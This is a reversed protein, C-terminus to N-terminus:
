HTSRRQSDTPTGSGLTGRRRVLEYCVGGLSLLFLLLASRALSYKQSQVTKKFIQLREGINLPRVSAVNGYRQYDQGYTLIKRYYTWISSIELHRVCMEPFYRIVACSYADVAKRVFVIDSNRYIPSFPGLRDFLTRRIALNSTYGVYIEKNNSSLIYAAKESEYAEMMALTPSGPAFQLSGLVIGADPNLAAAAAIKQLWDKRPACNSDTFAIIAGKAATLGRNRAAFDGRLPESLLNIGPYQRVIAASRDSSNNDVMIIEHNEKPYDQSLLAQICDAIYDEENYFPVVVSIDM